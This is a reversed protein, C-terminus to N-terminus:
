TDETIPNEKPKKPHKPTRKLTGLALNTKSEEGPDDNRKKKPICCNKKDFCSGIKKKKKCIDGKVNFKWFFTIM